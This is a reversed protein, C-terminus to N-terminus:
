MPSAGTTNGGTWGWRVAAEDEVDILASRTDPVVHCACVATRGALDLHWGRLFAFNPGRRRAGLVARAARRRRWDHPDDLSYSAIYAEVGEAPQSNPDPLAAM